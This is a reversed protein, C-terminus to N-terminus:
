KTTRPGTLSLILLEEPLQGQDDSDPPISKADQYNVSPNRLIGRDLRSLSHVHAGSMAQFTCWSWPESGKLILDLYSKWM